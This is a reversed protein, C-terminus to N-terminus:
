PLLNWGIDLFLFPTLDQTTASELDSNISPEMLLNPTASTDWHSKSSGPQVPNPAYLRVFGEPSAGALFAEDLILKSVSNGPLVAKIADGDDKSTGVSPIVVDPSSGGMPSRGVPQNNVVIVGKAGAAQANLVKTVFACAGRDVVAIKGNMNNQIPECADTSVGSGDDALVMKGTTGGGGGLPPGFSAGQAEYSGAISKPNLIKVSPRAGLIGPAAATVNAGTWVLNDTNVQSALREADTMPPWFKGTTRDFMKTMYIDDLGFFKAGTGESVLELNGLGHAIEHMVVTLFDIDGVENNDFGYYWSTGALCNPDNDDIDSNFFTIIDIFGPDLDAAALSDAEAGTYWTNAVGAGPFNAFVSTPGASALVGGGANCPLPQFTGGVFITVNSDLVAGWLQAARNYVNIRQEGITTGPNGGIPAAPTPDNLGTGPLDFNILQLTAAEAPVVTLCLVAALIFTGLSNHYRM